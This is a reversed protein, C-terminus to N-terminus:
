GPIDLMAHTTDIALPMVYQGPTHGHTVVLALDGVPGADIQVDVAELLDLLGQAVALGVEPTGLCHRLGAAPPQVDPM